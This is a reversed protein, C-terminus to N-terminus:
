PTQFPRQRVANPPSGDLPACLSESGPLGIRDDIGATEENAIRQFHRDPLELLLRGGLFRVLTVEVIWHIRLMGPLIRGTGWRDRIHRGDRAEDPQLRVRVLLRM